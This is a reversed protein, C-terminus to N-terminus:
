AHGGGNLHQFEAEAMLGPAIDGYLERLLRRVEDELAMGYRLYANNLAKVRRIAAEMQGPLRQIYRAEAATM